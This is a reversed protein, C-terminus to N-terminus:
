KRTKINQIPLYKRLRMMPAAYLVTIVVAIAACLAAHGAYPYGWLLNATVKGAVASYLAIGGWLLANAIVLAIASAGLGLFIQRLVLQSNSVGLAQLVGMRARDQELESSITNGFIMLALLLATLGLVCCLLINNVADSLLKEMSERYVEIEMHNERAFILLATDADEAPIDDKANIYFDTRGYENTYFVGNASAIARIGDRTKTSVAFPLAEKLLKAGCVIQYGESDGAFPWVGTDPFYYIIAGVTAASTNVTTVYQTGNLSKTITQLALTDGVQVSEDRLYAGDFEAYYSTQIGLAALREWGKAGALASENVEGTDRYLPALLIVESGSDFAAPDIGGVTIADTLRKFLEDESSLGWFDAEFGIEDATTAATLLPSDNFSERLITIDQGLLYADVSEAVELANLEALYEERQRISMAFPARLRYEPADDRTVTNRYEGLMRFGLFLCLTAILMMFTCLALSLITRGRNAALSRLTVHFFNQTRLKRPTPLPKKRATRGTLPVGVARVLPGTMGLALAAVGMVLAATLTARDITLLVTREQAKALANVALRAGGLGAAAGVPLATVLFFLFEWVLMFTIQKAEAGVAKLLVIRRLRHRIQSFFIQFVAAATTVFLIAMVLLLLNGTGDSASPYAFRNVRLASFDTPNEANEAFLTADVIPRMGGATFNGAAFDYLPIEYREGKYDFAVACASQDISFIMEVGGYAAADELILRGEEAVLQALSGNVSVGSRREGTGLDANYILEDTIYGGSPWQDTVLWGTVRETKTSDGYTEDALRFLFTIQRYTDSSTETSADYAYWEQYNPATFPSLAFVEDNYEPMLEHWLDYATVGEKATLLAMTPFPQSVFYPHEELAKAEGALLTKYNEDTIFGQPLDCQGCDWRDSYTDVVGTITYTYQLILDMGTTLFTCDTYAMRISLDDVALLDAVQVPDPYFSSSAEQLFREVITSFQEETLEMLPIAQGDPHAEDAFLYAYQDYYQVWWAFFYSAYSDHPAFALDEAPIWQEGINLGEETEFVTGSNWLTHIESRLPDKAADTLAFFQEKRAKNFEETAPLERKCLLTVTDGIELGAASMRAYELAIENKAEPWRGEKLTLQGLEALETSYPSVIYSNDGGFYDNGSMKVIPLVVGGGSRELMANTDDESIGSAMVQWSGYTQIRSAADTAELSTILTTSLVLFVFSLAVVSWLLATDRKRGWLGRLAIKRM